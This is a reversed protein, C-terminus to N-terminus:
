VMDKMENVSIGAKGASEGSDTARFYENGQPFMFRFMMYNAADVLYETNGTKRFKDICMEVSKVADM